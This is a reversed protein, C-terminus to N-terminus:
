EVEEARSSNSYGGRGAAGAGELLQKVRQQRSSRGENIQPRFTCERLEAQSASAEAQCRRLQVSADRAGSGLKFPEPVTFPARPTNAPLKTMFVKAEVAAKQEAQRKAMDKLEMFRGLGRVLVRGQLLPPLLLLHEANGPATGLCCLNRLLLCPVLQALLATLAAPSAVAAWCSAISPARHMSSRRTHLLSNSPVHNSGCVVHMQRSVTQKPVGRTIEPTFTCAKLEQYQKFSLAAEVRGEKSRAASHLREVV